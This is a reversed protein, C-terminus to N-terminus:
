EEEEMILDLELLHGDGVIRNTDDLLEAIYKTPSAWTIRAPFWGEIDRAAKRRLYEIAEEESEYAKSGIITDDGRVLVYVTKM